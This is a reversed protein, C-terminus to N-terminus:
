VEFDPFLVEDVTVSMDEAAKNIIASRFASRLLSPSQAFNQSEVEVTMATADGQGNEVLADATFVYNQGSRAVHYVRVMLAKAM